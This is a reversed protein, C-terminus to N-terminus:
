GVTAATLSNLLADVGMPVIDTAIRNDTIVSERNEYWGGILLLMAQRLSRPVATGAAGYGAQYPIAVSSPGRRHSPWSLGFAPLLRGPETWIDVTYQSPDLTQIVGNPDIYTIAGVSILPPRPLEIVGAPFCDLHRVWTATILQRATQEEVYERAAIILATILADDDTIDVRCHAKAEDLLIPEATPDVTRNITLM